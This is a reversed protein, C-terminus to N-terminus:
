RRRGCDIKLLRTNDVYFTKPSKRDPYIEVRLLSQARSKTATVKLTKRNMDVRSTHEAPPLIEDGDVEWITLRIEQDAGMECWVEASLVFAGAGVGRVDQSLTIGKRQNSGRVEAVYNNRFGSRNVATNKVVSLLSPQGGSWPELNGSEFNANKLLNEGAQGSSAQPTNVRHLITDSNHQSADRELTHTPAVQEHPLAEIVQRPQRGFSISTNCLAIVLSINILKIYM